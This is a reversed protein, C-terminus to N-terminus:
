SNRINKLNLIFSQRKRFSIFMFIFMVLVLIGATIMQGILQTPIIGQQTLSM